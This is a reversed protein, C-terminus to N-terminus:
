KTPETGVQEFIGRGTTAKALSNAHIALVGFPGLVAGAAMALLLHVGGQAIDGKILNAGGPIVSEGVVALGVGVPTLPAPTPNPGDDRTAM